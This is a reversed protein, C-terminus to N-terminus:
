RVCREFLSLLKSWHRDAAVKDYAPLDAMTFGHAAGKYLEVEYKFSARKLAEDLREMQEPPMTADNDAHAIYVEAQIQPLLLHISDAAHTALNGGHFSAAARIREPFRAAARLALGGGMCYGTAGIVGTCNGQESLFALFRAVDTLGEEYNYSTVLPIIKGRAGPMDEPRLPFSVDIIPARKKRYLLNPLLVIYGRSALKALMEFLGARPGYADMLFLIGPYKGPKEPQALTSDCAGDETQIDFHTLVCSDVM